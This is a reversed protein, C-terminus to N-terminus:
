LGAPTSHNNQKFTLSFAFYVTELARFHVLLLNEADHRLGLDRNLWKTITDDRYM